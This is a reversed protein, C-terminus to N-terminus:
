EVGFIAHRNKASAIIQQSVDINFELFLVYFGIWGVAFERFFMEFVNNLKIWKYDLVFMGVAATTYFGLFVSFWISNFLSFWIVTMSFVLGGMLVAALFSAMCVGVVIEFSATVCGFLTMRVAIAKKCNTCVANKLKKLCDVHAVGCGCGSGVLQEDDKLCIYCLM